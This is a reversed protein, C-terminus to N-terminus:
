PRYPGLVGVAYNAYQNDVLQDVNVPQQVQGQSVFWDQQARIDAANIRGDPNVYPMAMRDYLAPEKVPLHKVLQAIAAARDGRGAFFVDVYDRVGRLYALVFNNAVQPQRAFGASYFVAAIERGPALKETSVLLDITGQQRGLTIFPEILFSAALSGNQLGALTDPFSLTQQEVDPLSLGDSHLAASVLLQALSGEALVNVPLGRLDAIRTIQGNDVLRRSAVLGYYPRDEDTGSAVGQNAVMKIVVNRSIANFLGASGAGGFGVDLQDTSLLPIEQVVTAFQQVDLTIGLEEFYGREVALFLGADTLALLHGIRVTASVPAVQASPSAVPSSPVPSTASARAPTPASAAPAPAAPGGCGALLAASTAALWLLRFARSPLWSDIKM